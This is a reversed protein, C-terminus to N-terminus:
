HAAKAKAAAKPQGEPLLTGQAQAPRSVGMVRALTPAIDVVHVRTEVDAAKWWRPGWALIPVHTDDRYPSGHTAGTTKKSQMWGAKYAMMLQGSEGAFYSRRMLALIDDHTPGRDQLQAETYVQAVGDVKLLAAKATEYVEAPQVQRAQILALDFLMGQASTAKAWQGEGFRASVAENVAKLMVDDRVRGADRGISRAWEPTDSFGHDATLVVTYRQRGLQKDLDRFFRGLMTDLHLLHDQTLQSEPGNGHSIYDHASLSISLLDTVGRQGLKEGALAARAFDLTLEDAFPTSLLRKYYDADPKDADKGVVRQPLTKGLGDDEQWPQGGPVSQRYAEPGQALSWTQGFFRNAPQGGNFQEAWAPLQKMYFTTSTFRGTDSMYMYATGTKGSPMIAGRDKGSIGIMKSGARERLLVDGVTEAHLRRPSTGALKRTANGIYTHAPDDACYQEEGTLGNKWENAIIGTVQPYAGTLMAAHGACTVTHGHEQHADRYVTGGKLFRNFGDAGFYERNNEVQRMPLGDIAIFVVLRPAAAQAAKATAAASAHAPAPAAMATASALSLACAASVLSLASLWAAQFPPKRHTM